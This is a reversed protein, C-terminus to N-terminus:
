HRGAIDALTLRGAALEWLERGIEVLASDDKSRIWIWAQGDRTASEGIEFGQDKLVELAADNSANQMRRGEESDSYFFQTADFPLSAGGLCRFAARNGNLRCESSAILICRVGEWCSLGFLVVLVLVKAEILRLRRDQHQARDRCSSDGGARNGGSARSGAGIRLGTVFESSKLAPIRANAVFFIVSGGIAAIWFFLM